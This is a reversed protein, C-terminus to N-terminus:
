TQESINPFRVELIHASIDITSGFYHIRYICRSNRGQLLLGWVFTQHTYEHTFSEFM